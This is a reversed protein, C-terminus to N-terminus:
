KIPIRWVLLWYSVGIVGLMLLLAGWNLINLEAERNALRMWSHGGCADCYPQEDDAVTWCECCKKSMLRIIRSALQARWGGYGLFTM